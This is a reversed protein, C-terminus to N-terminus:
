VGLYFCRPLIGVLLIIWGKDGMENQNVECARVMAAVFFFVGTAGIQFFLYIITTIGTGDNKSVCTLFSAYNPVCDWGTYMRAPMMSQMFNADGTAVAIVTLLVGQVGM